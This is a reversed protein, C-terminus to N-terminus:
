VRVKWALELVQGGRQRLARLLSRGDSFGHCEHGLGEMTHRILELQSQEDDLAAIRM